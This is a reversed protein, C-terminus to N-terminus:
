QCVCQLTRHEELSLLPGVSKIINSFLKSWSRFDPARDVYPKFWDKEFIQTKKTFRTRGEGSPSLVTSRVGNKSAEFRSSGSM